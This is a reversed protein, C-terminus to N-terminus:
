IARASCNTVQLPGYEVARGAREISLYLSKIFIKSVENIPVSGPGIARAMFRHPFRPGYNVTRDEFETLLLYINQVIETSEVPSM